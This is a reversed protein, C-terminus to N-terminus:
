AAVGRYPSNGNHDHTDISRPVRSSIASLTDTTQASTDSRRRENKKDRYRYTDSFPVLLFLLLALLDLVGGPSHGHNFSKLGEGCGLFEAGSTDEITDDVEECQFVHGLRLYERGPWTFGQKNRRLRELDAHRITVEDIESDGHTEDSFNVRVQSNDPVVDRVQGM